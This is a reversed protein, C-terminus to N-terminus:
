VGLSAPTKDAHSMVALPSFRYRRTGNVSNIVPIYIRPLPFTSCVFVFQCEGGHVTCHVHLSMCELTSSLVKGYLMFSLVVFCTSRFFATRLWLFISSSAGVFVKRHLPENWESGRGICRGSHFFFLVCNTEYLTAVDPAPSERALQQELVFGNRFNWERDFAASGCEYSCKPIHAKFLVQILYSLM